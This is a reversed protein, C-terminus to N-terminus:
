KRHEGPPKSNNMMQQHQGQQQQIQTPMMQPFKNAQGPLQQARMMNSMAAHQQMMSHFIQQPMQQVFLVISYMKYMSFHCCFFLFFNLSLSVKSLDNNSGNLGNDIDKQGHFMRMLDSMPPM